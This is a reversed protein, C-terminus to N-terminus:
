CGCKALKLFSLVQFNIQSTSSQTHARSLLWTNTSAATKMMCWFAALVTAKISCVHANPLEERVRHLEVNLEILWMITRIVNGEAMGILNVSRMDSIVATDSAFFIKFFCFLFVHMKQAINCVATFQRNCVTLLDPGWGSCFHHQCLLYIDCVSIPLNFVMHDRLCSRCGYTVM